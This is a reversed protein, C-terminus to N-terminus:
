RNCLIVMKEAVVYVVMMDEEIQVAMSESRKPPDQLLAGHPNKSNPLVYVECPGFPAHELVHTSNM